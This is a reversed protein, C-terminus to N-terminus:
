ARKKLFPEIWDPPYKYARYVELEGEAYEAYPNQFEWVIEGQPTVEFMRGSDPKSGSCIFTHGNPLRQANSLFAGYFPEQPTGRYSWVIAGTLLDVEWVVSYGREPGNDFCLLHGNDLVVTAHQRNLIGPGWTWVIDGTAKDIIAALSLERHSIIINGARFRPDVSAPTQPLVQVTNSHTWDTKGTPFQVGALRKLEEIHDESRWEWVVEGELTAELIYSSLLTGPAIREDTISRECLIVTNGNPQREFDHHVQCPWFGLERGDWDMEVIGWDRDPSFQTELLLHGNPLLYAFHSTWAPWEHVIHGELDILLVKNAHDPTYLVYGPTTRDRDFRRLGDGPSPLILFGPQGKQKMNWWQLRRRGDPEYSCTHEREVTTLKM